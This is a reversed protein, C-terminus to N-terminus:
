DVVLWILNEVPVIYRGRNESAVNKCSPCVLLFNRMRWRMVLGSLVSM